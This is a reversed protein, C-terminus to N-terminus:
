NQKKFTFIYIKVNQFENIIDDVNSEVIDPRIGAVFLSSYKKEGVFTKLRIVLKDNTVSLITFRTLLHNSIWRNNVDKIDLPNKQPHWMDVTLELWKDDTTSWAGYHSESDTGSTANTRYVGNQEILMKLNQEKETLTMTQGDETISETLWLGPILDSKKEDDSCSSFLVSIFLILFFSINRIVNKM